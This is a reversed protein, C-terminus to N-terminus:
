ITRYFVTIKPIDKEVDCRLIITSGAESELNFISAGVKYERLVRTDETGIGLYWSNDTDLARFVKMYLQHIGIPLITFKLFDGVPEKDRITLNLNRVIDDKKQEEDKPPSLKIEVFKDKICYKIKEDDQSIIIKLAYPDFLLDCVIRGNITNFGISYYSPKM